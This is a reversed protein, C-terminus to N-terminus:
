QRIFHGHAGAWLQVLHDQFWTIKFGWWILSMGLARLSLLWVRHIRWLTWLLWGPIIPDDIWGSNGYLQGFRFIPIHVGHRGQQFKACGYFTGHKIIIIKEACVMIATGSVQTDEGEKKSNTRESSYYDSGALRPQMYSHRSTITKCLTKRASPFDPYPFRTM